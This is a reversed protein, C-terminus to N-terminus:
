RAAGPPLMAPEAATLRLAALAAAEDALSAPASAAVHTCAACAAILFTLLYQKM